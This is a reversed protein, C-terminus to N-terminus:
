KIEDNEWEGDDECGNAYIMVGHGHCKGNKYEGDYKDGNDRIYVGYGHFKNKM